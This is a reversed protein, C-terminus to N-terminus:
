ALLLGVLPPLPHRPAGGSLRANRIVSIAAYEGKALRGPIVLQPRNEGKGARAVLGAESSM